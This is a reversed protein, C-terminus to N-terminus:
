KPILYKCLGFLNYAKYMKSTDIYDMSYNGDWPYISIYKDNYINIVYKNVSFTVFIKYLPKNPLNAPKSIFSNNNLSNFFQIFTSLNDKSFDKKKYFNMYLTYLEVPKEQSLDKMLLNTYYFDNPKNKIYISKNFDYKCGFLDLSFFICIIILICKNRKINM